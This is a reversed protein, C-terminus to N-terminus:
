RRVGLPIRWRPRWRGDDGEVIVELATIRCGFPLSTAARDSIADLDAGDAETVTLHPVVGDFAGGYPPFDPFRAVVEATLRAFPDSPEPVLYVVGPFRGVRAFRVDFPEQGTAIEALARRDTPTLREPALFPFLITVHAPVGAGAARDWRRRLRAIAVPVTIRVVIGSAPETAVM